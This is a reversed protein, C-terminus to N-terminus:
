PNSLLSRLRSELPHNPFRAYFAKAFTLALERDGQAVLAEIRLAAAEPALAPEPFERGHRELVSLALRPDGRSLAVRASDLLAVEDALSPGRVELVPAVPTPQVGPAPSPVAESPPTPVRAALPAGPANRDGRAAAPGPSAPTSPGGQVERPGAPVQQEPPSGGAGPIRAVEGPVWAQAFADPYRVRGGPAAFPGEASPTRAAEGAAAVRGTGGPASAIGGPPPVEAGPYQGRGGPAAAPVLADPRATAQQALSQSTGANLRATAAARNSLGVVTGAAVAAGLVVLALSKLGAGAGLAGASGSGASAGAAASASGAALGLAAAAAARAAMSPGDHAASELLTRELGSAGEDQLRRPENM